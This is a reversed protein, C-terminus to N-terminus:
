PLTPPIHPNPTPIGPGALCRRKSTLPSPVQAAHKSLGLNRTKVGLTTGGSPRRVITGVYGKCFGIHDKRIGRFQSSAWALGAITSMVRGNPESSTPSPASFHYANSCGVESCCDHVAKQASTRPASAKFLKEPRLGGRYAPQLGSAPGHERLIGSWHQNTCSWPSSCKKRRRYAQPTLVRHWATSALERQRQMHRRDLTGCRVDGHTAESLPTTHWCARRIEGFSIRSWSACASAWM